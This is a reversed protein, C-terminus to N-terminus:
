KFLEEPQNDHYDAIFEEMTYQGKKFTVINMDLGLEKAARKYDEYSEHECFAVKPKIIKLISKIEDLFLFFIQLFKNKCGLLRNGRPSQDVADTYKFFLNCTKLKRQFTINIKFLIDFM